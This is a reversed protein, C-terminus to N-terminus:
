GCVACGERRIIRPTLVECQVCWKDTPEFQKPHRNAYHYVGSAGKKYYIELMKKYLKTKM